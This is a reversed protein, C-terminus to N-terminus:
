NAYNKEIYNLMKPVDLTEIYLSVDNYDNLNCEVFMYECLCINWMMIAHTENTYCFFNSFENNWAVLVDALSEAVNDSIPLMSLSTGVSILDELQELKDKKLQKCFKIPNDIYIRDGFITDEIDNLLVTLVLDLFYIYLRVSTKDTSVSINYDSSKFNTNSIINVLKKSISYAVGYHTKIQKLTKKEIVKYYNHLFLRKIYNLM